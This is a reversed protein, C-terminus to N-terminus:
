HSDVWNYFRTQSDWVILWNIHNRQKRGLRFDIWCKAIAIITGGWRQININLEFFVWSKYSQHLLCWNPSGLNGGLWLATRFPILHVHFKINLTLVYYIFFLIFLFFFFFKKEKQMIFKHRYDHNSYIAKITNLYWYFMHYGWFVCLKFLIYMYITMRWSTAGKQTVHWNPSERSM